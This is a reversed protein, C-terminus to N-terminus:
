MAMSFRPPLVNSNMFRSPQGALISAFRASLDYAVLSRKKLCSFCWFQYLYMPRNSSVRTCIKPSFVFGPARAPSRENINGDSVKHYNRDFEDNAVTRVHGLGYYKTSTSRLNAAEDQWRFKASFQRFIVFCKQLRDLGHYHVGVRLCGSMRTKKRPHYM